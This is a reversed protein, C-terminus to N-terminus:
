PQVIDDLLLPVVERLREASLAGRRLLRPVPATLDMITSLAASPLPGDDVYVAVAEGLQDQAEAATSPPPATTRSASSVALPGTAQLVELLLPHLPM